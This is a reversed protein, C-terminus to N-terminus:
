IATLYPNIYVKYLIQALLYLIVINYLYRNNFRITRQNRTLTYLSVVIASLLLVVGTLWVGGEPRFAYGLICIDVGSVAAVYAVALATIILSFIFGSIRWTVSHNHTQSLLFHAVLPVNFYIATLLMIISLGNLATILPLTLIFVIVGFQKLLSMALFRDRLWRPNVAMWGLAVILPVSWPFISFVLQLALMNLRSYGAIPEALSGIGLILRATERSNALFAVLLYALAASVVLLVLLRVYDSVRKKEQISIFIMGTVAMALPSLIGFFLSACAASVVLLLAKTRSRRKIWHYLSALAAILFLSTLTLPSAHYALASVSYSSIFILSALFAYDKREHEGRFYFIGCSLLWIVTAAPIRVALTAPYGFVNISVSVLYAYFSTAFNGANHPTLLSGFGSDSLGRAIGLIEEEDGCLGVAGLPLYVVLASLAMLLVLLSYEPNVKKM